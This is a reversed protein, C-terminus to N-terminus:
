CGLYEKWHLLANKIAENSVSSDSSNLYQLVMALDAQLALPVSAINQSSQFSAGSIKIAHQSEFENAKVEARDIIEQPLGAMSAVGMGYSKPCVGNTLKYLFTVDRRNPNVLCDMHMLSVNPHFQMEQTLMGYHTSFLGVCSIKSVLYYLVSLAIAYGDFTSTGRGLEDLIVLSQPTAEQIIKATEALEVMFTSQGALINDNAGIRTFIRNFPTLRCKKAPVYCGLQAMIIAVCTQRLLTSKGGMNPGTLLIINPRAVSETSGLFTDNPIFHSGPGANVCPHRLEEIELFNSVGPSVPVFEPRTCPEGMITASKALSLLCDFTAIQKMAVLWLVYHEDFRKFMRSQMTRLISSRTEKIEALENVLVQTEPTRYRSVNKSSSLKIWSAPAQFSSPFELQYVEKGITKYCISSIKYEIRKQKLYVELQNEVQSCRANIEDYDDEIGDFPIYTGEELATKHDFSTEFFNLQKTIDPFLNIIELLLQSRITCSYSQLENIITIIERFAVIVEILNSIKVTGAHIRSLLREIDPLKKLRLGINQLCVNSNIDEVADLRANIASVSCLPHCLWKRFLRKGFPTICHNLLALISGTSSGDSNNELVELNHLSQGDLIMSSTSEMPNFLHINKLSLLQTDLKLSRLYWVLGGFASIALPCGVLKKLALPWTDEEGLCQKDKIEALTSQCDWFEKESILGNIILAESSDKILKLAESSLKSKEYVLERPKIQMILTELKTLSQDDELYSLQFEATATDVFAIGYKPKLGNSPMEEKISLCYTSQDNPLLGPEVLTGATLVCTLERKIIKDEKSGGSDRERMTKSLLNEVQDVKAIKYGKAIFKSAWFEFSSEPFGAMKMNVRDTLKLDFQQHGILADDEYLEFFKGKKFFVVTDFYKCKIEWFQKEFPTFKTWASQPIYLTRPDYDPHDPPNKNADLINVLFPFRGEPFSDIKQIKPTSPQSPSKKVVKPSAFSQLKSVSSHNLHKKSIPTLMYDFSNQKTSSLDVQSAPQTNKEFNEMVFDLEDDDVDLEFEDDSEEIKSKKAPPLKSNRVNSFENMLESLPLDDDSSEILRVQRVKRGSRTVTVPVSDKPEPVLNDSSFSAERKKTEPQVLKPSILDPLQPKRVVNNNSTSGIGGLEGLDVKKEPGEGEVNLSSSKKSPPTFFTLLSSQTSKKSM